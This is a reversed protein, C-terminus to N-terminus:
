NSSNLIGEIVDRDSVLKGNGIRIAKTNQIFDTMTINTYHLLTKIQNKNLLHIGKITKSVNGQHSHITDAIQDQSMELSSFLRQRFSKDLDCYVDRSILIRLFKNKKRECRDFIKIKWLKWYNPWGSIIIEARNGNREKFSSFIGEKALCLICYDRLWPENKPNYAFGVYNLYNENNNYGVTGEAAFYGRLFARRLSQGVRIKDLSMKLLEKFIKCFITGGLQLKVSANKTRTDRMIRIQSNNIRLLKSINNVLSTKQGHNYRIQIYFDKYSINFKILFANLVFKIIDLDISTIEVHSSDNQTNKGDGLYLGVLEAFCEDLELFKPMVFQKLRSNPLKKRIYFIKLKDHPLNELVLNKDHFTKRALVSLDFKM